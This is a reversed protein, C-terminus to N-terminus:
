AEPGRRINQLDGDLMVQIVKEQGHQDNDGDKQQAHQQGAAEEQGRDVVAPAHHGQPPPRHDRETGAMQDILRAPYDHASQWTSAHPHPHPQGALRGRGDLQRPAAARHGDADVDHV